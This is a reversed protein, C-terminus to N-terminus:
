GDYYTAPGRSLDRVGEAVGRFDVVNQHSSSLFRPFYSTMGRFVPPFKNKVVSFISNLCEANHKCNIIEKMTADIMSIKGFTLNWRSAKGSPFILVLCFLVCCFPVSANFLFRWVNVALWYSIFFCDLCTSFLSGHLFSAPAVNKEAIGRLVSVPKGANLRQLETNWLSWINLFLDSAM